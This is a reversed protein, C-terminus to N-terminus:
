AAGIVITTAVALFITITLCDVLAKVSTQHSHHRVVIFVGRAITGLTADHLIMLVKKTASYILPLIVLSHLRPWNLAKSTYFLVSTQELSLLDLLPNWMNHAFDDEFSPVTSVSSSLSEMAQELSCLVWACFLLSLAPDFIVYFIRTLHVLFVIFGITFVVCVEIKLYHRQMLELANCDNWSRPSTTVAMLVCPLTLTIIFGAPPLMTALLLDSHGLHLPMTLVNMELIGGLGYVHQMTLRLRHQAMSQQSALALQVHTRAQITGLCVGAAHKSDYYICSQKDRVVPGHPGLFSLAEIMATMEATKNSHTRAGSFALRAETTVVPGFM